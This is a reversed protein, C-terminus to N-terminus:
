IFSKKKFDFCSLITHSSVPIVKNGKYKQNTLQELKAEKISQHVKEKFQDRESHFQLYCNQFSLFSKPNSSKQEIKIDIIVIM